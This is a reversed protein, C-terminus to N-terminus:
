GHNVVLVVLLLKISFSNKLSKVDKGYKDVLVILALTQENM